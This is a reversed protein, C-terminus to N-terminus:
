SFISVKKAYEGDAFRFLVVRLDDYDDDTHDECCFTMTEAGPREVVRKISGKTLDNDGERFYHSFRVLAEEKMEFRAEVASTDTDNGVTAIEKNDDLNFLKVKNAFAAKASTVKM